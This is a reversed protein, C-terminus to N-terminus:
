PMTEAVGAPAGGAKYVLGDKMAFDVQELGEVRTLPDDKVAIVDAHCAVQVCGAKSM